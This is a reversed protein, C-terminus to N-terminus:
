AGTRPRLLRKGLGIEPADFAAEVREAGTPLWGNRAYFTISPANDRFVWLTADVAGDLALESEAAALLRSGLGAGQSRPSVYLSAVHGIEAVRSFRVLGLAEGDRWAVLTTGPRGLAERWLERASDDDMRDIVEPPLVGAYSVRWCELFVAVISDLDDPGAVRLAVDNV